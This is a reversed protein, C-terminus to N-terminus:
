RGRAIGERRPDAAGMLKGDKFMIATMGSNMEGVSVKHGFDELPGRMHELGYELELMEGRALFHPMNLADQIDMDWDIVAIIRQVVYGIIRSGGASGIVLFPKGEPDFVIAPSMSSRPRKGGEARNAVPRGYKEPVFSFDTLENNLLFGGVMLKSGFAGEITTTMSLINGDRDVISIHSTGPRTHNPDSARDKGWGPPKGPMIHPVPYVPNILASRAAMYNPDLLSLGPTEVFDSDAMYLNRDAFALRSAEAVLHISQPNDPGSAALDFRELLGLIHLMTLAGSSPEGMSCIKYNRYFGCVAEREKIEYAALDDTTMLGPNDEAGQVVAVIDPAMTTYIYGAGEDRLGELTKVYNMAKLIAGDPKPSSHPKQPATEDPKPTSIKDFFYNRATEYRDLRGKDAEILRTLRPSIEFGKEAIELADDFLVAWELKGFRKHLEALLAPTGPVGVARGGIVADYFEMPSGDEKLFLDPGAKQPATERGDLSILEKTEADYYLVFAGGGLGSSQPEVLGLVLQAAIAADAASGGKRLVAYAAQSALKNATVAMYKKAIVPKKYAFSTATEPALEESSWSPVPLILVGLAVIMLQLLLFFRRSNHCSM